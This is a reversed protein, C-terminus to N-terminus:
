RQPFRTRSLGSSAVELLLFEVAAM